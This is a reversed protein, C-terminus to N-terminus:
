QGTSSVSYGGGRAIGSGGAGGTASGGSVSVSGCQASPPCPPLQPAGLKQTAVGSGTSVAASAADQSGPWWATFWGNEVTAVVQSGDALTLTAGTVGAGVHGDVITFADGGRDTSHMSSLEIQGAPVTSVGPGASGSVSTFEPGTICTGVADPGASILITFPGRQDEIVPTLAPTDIKPAGPPPAPRSALRAGCAAQAAAIQASSATSPTSTWGAFASSAGAGLLAVTIAGAGAAGTAGAAAIRPRALRARGVRPGSVAASVRRVSGEPVGAATEHLAERLVDELEDIKM